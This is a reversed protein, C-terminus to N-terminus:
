SKITKFTKKFWRNLMSFEYKYNDLSPPLIVQDHMAMNKLYEEGSQIVRKDSGILEYNFKIRPIYPTKIVRMDSLPGTRLRVEGALDLDTVTLKLTQDDPLKKALRNLFTEFQEFTYSQFDEDSEYLSAKVDIYDEPNQWKLSLKAAFLNASSLLLLVSVISKSLNKM